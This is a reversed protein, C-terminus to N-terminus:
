LTICGLTFGCQQGPYGRQNSYVRTRGIRYDTSWHTHGHIWLDPQHKLILPELDSNFAPSLLSAKFMPPISRASPAHHTIVVTPGDHPISLTQELWAIAAEHFGLTDAARLRRGRHDILQYDAVIREALQMSQLQRDAGLLKFDTWLCTGLIRVMRGKLPLTVADNELFHLGPGAEARCDALTLKLIDGYPEHNGLIMVVPIGPFRTKAWLLGEAGLGIDGALIVLDPREDLVPEFPAFELHVDSLVLIRIPATM